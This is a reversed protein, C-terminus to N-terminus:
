PAVIKFVSFIITAMGVVVCLPGKLIFLKQKITTPQAIAGQILCRTAVVSHIVGFISIYGSILGVVIWTSM